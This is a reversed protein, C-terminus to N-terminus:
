LGLLYTKHINKLSLWPISPKAEFDVIQHEPSSDEGDGEKFEEQPPLRRFNSSRDSFSESM